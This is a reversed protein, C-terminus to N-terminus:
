QSTDQLLSKAAARAEKTVEIGALMRAIEEKREDEDLIEIKTIVQNEVDSKSVRWHHTGCSAVQPSHTVVLVQASKAIDLLREGVAAAVAGGIGSDVEDFIITPIADSEALVTKLALMFRSIEGGSAIKSLPGAEAGLNTSVQFIVQDFGNPGWASEELKLVQTSFTANKMKLPALQASVGIDLETAKKSRAASLAKAQTFFSNKAENAAIELKKLRGEGDEVDSLKAEMQILLSELENVDVNHKRAQARLAFLREEIAELKKPDLDIGSCAKELAGQGEAVEIAARDLAAVVEDLRGNAKSAVLELQYSINRLREEMGEARTLEVLAKNMAEILHEGNMLMTRQSALEADEGKKPALNKLENFAHVLFDKDRRTQIMEAEAEDRALMAKHWSHYLHSVKAQEQKLGGYSDLLGCHNSTNILRHSEFQGHVEVLTEGIKKLLSVSVPHDNIFSRSKGNSTLVRRLILENNGVELGHKDLIKDISNELCINFTASVVAQKAGHRVLRVEARVGLALGLADLLISKGAGTEGTLVVLGEDFSLDLHKILVVDRISLSQLM